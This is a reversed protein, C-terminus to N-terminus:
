RASRINSKNTAFNIRRTGDGIVEFGAWLYPQAKVGFDKIFDLQAQRLAESVSVGAALHQYFSEMLTATSRDEVRWLSAVVSKAGATLFARSLNMVGEEGQLRGVGTECASLVVADANLRTRRIERAQWLGDEGGNGSALVFAARDPEVENGVTHAALHIVKFDALPEAKLASESAQDGDLTVAAKGFVAAAEKVEERAYPLPTLNPGRIDFLGRTRSAADPTSQNDPPSYAVGLFPQTATRADSVTKLAYYVSASPAASVTLRQNLYSGTKDVLAAFPISHLSGDPVIILSSSKESLVPWILREYLAKAPATSDAKQSIASLLTKTLKDIEARGALSHIALGTNSVAMAYSTKADLVYEILIEGPRLQRSLADVSTPQGHVFGVEKRNQEFDAPFANDYARDLQALVRETAKSDLRSHLLIKQLRSIEAEAPSPKDRLNLKDPSGLTGVLAHGRASEIIQFAKPGDHLHTWALRFHGLYIESLSGIMSSKVRSTPANILLGEVLRAAQDYLTDATKPRGLALEAEAKEAIYRPLDYSEHTARLVEISQNIALEAQANRHQSRYIKSLQLLADAQMTPLSAQQAIRVEESFSREAGSIDNADMSMQGSEGLLDTQAGLVGQSRAKALTVQLLAKAEARGHESKSGSLARIKAASFQFPMEVRGSKQTATEVRDLLRLASDSMGITAMGNALWIGFTLEGPVDGLQEAKAIAQFLAKAARGNDGNAGWAIGLYGNARNMWKEDGIKTAVALLNTWDNLAAVTDQNMDITGLIQLAKIKLHPDTDILPTALIEETEKRSASYNGLQVRYRITGLKAALENRSDGVRHFGMEAQQYLPAAQALDFSEALNDARALLEAPTSQASAFSAAFFAVAALKASASISKVTLNFKNRLNSCSPIM